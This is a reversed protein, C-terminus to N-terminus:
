LRCLAARDRTDRLPGAPEDPAGDRAQQVQDYTLRAASRMLGRMFRHHRKNGDRDIIMEVALCAREQLPKLSCLENSLAEPLM